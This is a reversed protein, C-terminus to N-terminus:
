LNDLFMKEYITLKSSTTDISNLEEINEISNINPQYLLGLLSSLKSSLSRNGYKVIIPKHQNYRWFELPDLNVAFMNAFLMEIFSSYPAGVSLILSTMKQYYQNPKEINKKQIRLLDKIKNLVTIADNNHVPKTLSSFVLKNDEIRLFGQLHLMNEDFQNKDFHLIIENKNNEIDVLHNKLLNQFEENKPLNASGSEHFTRMTLQTLREALVQGATIGLYKTPFKREGFCKLCLKFDKTQCTMPSRILIKEGIYKKATDYNLLEWDMIKDPDKYWKQDLIEAHKESLVTIELGTNIGCDEENVELFSLMMVLSRELSGSDPTSKANDAIGKRTGEAGMFFDLESLGSILNTTIPTPVIQNKANACYGINIVSRELQTSSFRSGSEHLKYLQSQKDLKDLCRQVLSKHIYYGIYPQNNPLKKFLQEENPSLLSLLQDMNITPTENICSIYFLLKNNLQQLQDYYKKNDKNFYKHIIKSIKSSDKKTIKSNIIIHKFGCWKNFLCVGYSYTNNNFDIPTNISNYLEITEELENLNDVTITKLNYDILSTSLLHAAYLAEHRITSLMKNSSDYLVYNQLFAKDYIEQLTTNDHLVYLASTDGDFDANLPELTLPSLGITEDSDDDSPVIEMGVCSHRFLSPQRNLFCLKQLKKNM